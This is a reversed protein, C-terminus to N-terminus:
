ISGLGMKELLGHRSDTSELEIEFAKSVLAPQYSSPELKLLLSEDLPKSLVLKENFAIILDIQQRSLRNVDFVGKKARLLNFVLRLAEPGFLQKNIRLAEFVAGTIEKDRILLLGEELGSVGEITAILYGDFGTRLLGALKEFPNSESFAKRQEEITGVPINM